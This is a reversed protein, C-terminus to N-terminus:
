NWVKSCYANCQSRTFCPTVHSVKIELLFILILTERIQVYIEALIFHYYDLWSFAVRFLYRQIPTVICPSHMVSNILWKKSSGYETTVLNPIFALWQSEIQCENESSINQLYFSFLLIQPESFCLASLTQPTFFHM